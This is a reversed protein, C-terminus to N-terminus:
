QASSDMGSAAGVMKGANVAQSECVAHQSTSCYVENKTKKTKQKKTKPKKKKKKKKKTHPLQPASLDCSVDSIVDPLCHSWPQLLLEEWQVQDRPSGMEREMRARGPADRDRSEQVKQDSM